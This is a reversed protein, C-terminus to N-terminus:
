RIWCRVSFSSSFDAAKTPANCEQGRLPRPCVTYKWSPWARHFGVGAVVATYSRSCSPDYSDCVGVRRDAALGTAEIDAM